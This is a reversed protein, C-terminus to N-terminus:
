VTLPRRLVAAKGRKHRGALCGKWRCSYLQGECHGRLDVCNIREVGGFTRSRGVTGGGAARGFRGAVVVEKSASVCSNDGVQVMFASAVNTYRFGVCYGQLDVAIIREVGKLPTQKGRHKRAGRRGCRRSGCRTRLLGVRGRM